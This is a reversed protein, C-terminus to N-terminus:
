TGAAAWSPEMEEAARGASAHRPAGVGRRAGGAAGRGAACGASRPAPGAGGAPPRPADEASVGARTGAMWNTRDMALVDHRNFTLPPRRRTPPPPREALPPEPHGPPRPAPPATESPRPAPLPPAPTGVADRSALPRLPATPAPSASPGRLDPPRPGHGRAPRAPLDPAPRRKRRAAGLPAGTRHQLGRPVPQPARVAPHVGKRQGRERLGDERVRRGVLSPTGNPPGLGPGGRDKGRAPAPSCASRTWEGVAQQQLSWSIRLSTLKRRWHNKRLVRVAAKKGKVVVLPLDM